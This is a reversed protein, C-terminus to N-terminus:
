TIWKISCGLSPDFWKDIKEGKLLKSVQDHMTREKPTDEPNMADTLKGHFVLKHDKDFLYPDPTCTAGYTRAVDQTEDLLYPFEIGKEQVFKKMNEMGEGPYDPDNSNIGVIAIKEGLEEHLKKIEDTKALVFPCHNCMFIILLGEYESFNSLSYSKGNAGELAFEPASDGASLKKTNSPTLTM